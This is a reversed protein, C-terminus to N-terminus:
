ARLWHLLADLAVPKPLFHAFHSRLVLTDSPSLEDGSMLMVRLRPLRARAAVILDLGDDGGLRRDVILCDFGESGLARLAAFMTARTQVDYAGRLSRALARLVVDDDDVILVRRRPM